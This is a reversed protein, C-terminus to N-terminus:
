VYQRFSCSRQRRSSSRANGIKCHSLDRVEVEHDSLQAALYALTLSPLDAVREKALELLRAPLSRGVEFVTGYGGAVDKLTCGPHSRITLLAVRM